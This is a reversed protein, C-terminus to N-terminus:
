TSSPLRIVALGETLSYFKTQLRRPWACTSALCRPFTLGIPTCSYGARNMHGAVCCVSEAPRCSGSPKMSRPCSLCSTRLGIAYATNPSLHLAALEQRRVTRMARPLDAYILAVLGPPADSTEVDTMISREPANDRLYDQSRVITPLAQTQIPAQRSWLMTDTNDFERELFSPCHAEDAQCAYFIRDLHLTIQSGNVDQTSLLLPSIASIIQPPHRANMQQAFFTTFSSTETPSLTAPSANTGDQRSCATQIIILAASALLLLRLKLLDKM